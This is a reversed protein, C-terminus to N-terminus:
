CGRKWLAIAEILISLTVNSDNLKWQNIFSTLETGDTCGDHNSDSRHCAVDSGSCDEDINNSCIEAAGPHISANHDSCDIGLTCGAGYGDGDMDTCVSPTSGGTVGVRSIDAGMDAGGKGTGKCPSNSALKFDQLESLTGSPNLFRPDSVLSHLDPHGGGTIATSAQWSSLSYYEASNSQYRHTEIRLPSSGFDNYDQEGINATEYGNSYQNNACGQIINNWIKINSVQSYGLCSDTDSGFIINNNIETNDAHATEQGYLNLGGDNNALVNNYYRNNDSNRCPDGCNHTELIAQYTDHIFNNRFISNENLSKIYMGTTSDYIECNEITANRNHYMKIAASNWSDQISQIGYIRCDQVLTDVSEDIRIGDRNDGHVIKRSGGRVTIHKAALGYSRLTEDEGALLLGGLEAGNNAQITFGDFTIYSQYRVGMVTTSDSGIEYRDGPHLDITNHPYGAFTITHSAVGNTELIWAGGERDRTRITDPYAIGAAIFDADNDILQTNDSGADAIGTIKVEVNGNMVPTEDPYAKFIIPNQATGSHRPYLVPLPYVSQGVEYQGGRFLVTDGAQANLFGTQAACPTNINTCQSWTASGSPSVYYTAASSSQVFLLVGIFCILLTSIHLQKTTLLM